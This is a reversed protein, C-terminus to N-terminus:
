IETTQAVAEGVSRGWLFDRWWLRSKRLIQLCFLSRVSDTRRGAPRQLRSPMQAINKFTRTSIKGSL